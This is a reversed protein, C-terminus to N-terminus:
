KKEAIIYYDPPENRIGSLLMRIFRLIKKVASSDWSDEDVGNKVVWLGSAEFVEKLEEATHPKVHTKDKWFEVTAVGINKINPLIAIFLGGKKIVKAIGKVLKPLKEASFHELVHRAYVGDYLSAKASRIYAEIDKKVVKSGQRKVPSRDVGTAILGTEECISLFDGRGSGLELVSGGKKFARAYKYQKQRNDM